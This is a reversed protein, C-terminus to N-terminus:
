RPVFTGPIHQEMSPWKWMRWAGVAKEEAKGSGRIYAHLDLGGERGGELGPVHHYVVMEKGEPDHRVVFDGEAQKHLLGLIHVLRTVVEGMAWAARGEGQWQLWRPMERRQILKTLKRNKGDIKALYPSAHGAVWNFLLHRILGHPFPEEEESWELAYDVEVSLLAEKGLGAGEEAGAAAAGGGGGGGGTAESLAVRDSAVVVKLQALQWAELSLTRDEEEGEKGGEKGGERGGEKGALQKPVVEQYYLDARERWTMTPPLLPSHVVLVKKGGERGGEEEGGVTRVSFPIMWATSPDALLLLTPLDILIDGEDFVYDKQGWKAMRDWRRADRPSWHLDQESSSSSSSSAAAAAAAAAAASGKEQEEKEEEEGVTIDVPLPPVRVREESVDAAKIGGIFAPELSEGVGGEPKLPSKFHMQYFQPLSGLQHLRLAQLYADVRPGVHKELMKYPARGSERWKSLQEGYKAQEARVLPDLKELTQREDATLPRADM